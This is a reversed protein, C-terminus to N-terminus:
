NVVMKRSYGFIGAQISYIYVGSTLGKANFNVEHNGANMWVNNVIVSVMAGQANYVNL